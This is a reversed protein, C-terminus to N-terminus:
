AASRSFHARQNGQVSSMLRSASVRRPRLFDKQASGLRASGSRLVGRGGFEVSSCKTWSLSCLPSRRSSSALLGDNLQASTENASPPLSRPPRTLGYFGAFMASNRHLSSKTGTSCVADGSKRRPTRLGRPYEGWCSLREGFVVCVSIRTRGAKGLPDRLPRVIQGSTRGGKNVSQFHFRNPEAHESSKDQEGHDGNQCRFARWAAGLEPRESADDPQAAILNPNFCRQLFGYPEQTQVSKLAADPRMKACLNRHTSEGVPRSRETLTSRHRDDPKRPAVPTM